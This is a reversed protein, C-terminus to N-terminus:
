FSQSYIIHPLVAAIDASYPVRRAYVTARIAVSVSEGSEVIADSYLLGKIAPLAGATAGTATSAFVLDGVALATLTTEVTVVDYGANSTNIVTIPYAKGGKVSGFNDGVKLLSGKSIKYDTATAGAVETIKASVFPKALRTAEDFLMPTGAPIIAGVPLGTIDLGFGGQALSLDKGYGQFVPISGTGVVKKFGLGM